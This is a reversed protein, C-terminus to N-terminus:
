RIFRKVPLVFLVASGTFGIVSILVGGGAKLVRIQQEIFPFGLKIM